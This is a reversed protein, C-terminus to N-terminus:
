VRGDSSPSRFLYCGVASSLSPMLVHWTMVIAAEYPFTTERKKPPPPTPSPPSFRSVLKPNVSPNCYGLASGIRRSVLKKEGGVFLSFTPMKLKPAGRVGDAM